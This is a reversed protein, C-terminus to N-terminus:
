LALLPVLFKTSQTSAVLGGFFKSLKQSRFSFFVVLSWAPNLDVVVPDGAGAGVQKAVRNAMCQQNGNLALKICRM